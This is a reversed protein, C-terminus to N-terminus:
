FVTISDRTCNACIPLIIMTFIKEDIYEDIYAKSCRTAKFSEKQSIWLIKKGNKFIIRKCHHNNVYRLIEVVPFSEFLKDVKEENDSFILATRTNTLIGSSVKPFKSLIYDKKDMKYM